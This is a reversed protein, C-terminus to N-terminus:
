GKYASLSSICKPYKTLIYSYLAKCNLNVGKHTVRYVHICRFNICRSIILKYICTFIYNYIYIYKYIDIGSLTLIIYIYLYM